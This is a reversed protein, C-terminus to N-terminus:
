MLMQLANSSIMQRLTPVHSLFIDNTAVIPIGRDYAIDIPKNEVSQNNKQGKFKLLSGRMSYARQIKIYENGQDDM